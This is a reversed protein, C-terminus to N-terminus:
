ADEKVEGVLILHVDKFERTLSLCFRTEPDNQLVWYSFDEDSALPEGWSKRLLAQAENFNVLNRNWSIDAKFFPQYGNSGLM